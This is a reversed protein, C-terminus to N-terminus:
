CNVWKNLARVFSVTMQAPQCKNGLLCCFTFVFFYCILLCQADDEELVSERLVNFFALTLISEHFFYTSNFSDPKM